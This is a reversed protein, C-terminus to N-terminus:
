CIESVKESPLMIGYCVDAEVEDWEEFSDRWVRDLFRELRDMLKQEDSDMFVM